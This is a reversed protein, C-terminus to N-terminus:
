RLKLAAEAGALAAEAADAAHQLVDLIGNRYAVSAGVRTVAIETGESGCRLADAARAEAVRAAWEAASEGRLLAAIRRALLDRVYSHLRALV